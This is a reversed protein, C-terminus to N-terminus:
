RKIKGAYIDSEKVLGTKKVMIQKNIKPSILNASNTEFFIQISVRSNQLKLM